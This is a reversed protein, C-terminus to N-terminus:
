GLITENMDREPRTRTENPVRKPTLAKDGSLVRVLGTAFGAKPRYQYENFPSKLSGNEVKKLLIYCFNVMQTVVRSIM